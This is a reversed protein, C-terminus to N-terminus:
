ISRDVNSDTWSHIFKTFFTSFGMITNHPFLVSRSLYNLNFIYVLQNHLPLSILRCLPDGKRRLKQSFHHYYWSFPTSQLKQIVMKQYNSHSFHRYLFILWRILYEYKKGFNIKSSSFQLSEFTSGIIWGVGLIKSFDWNFFLVLLSHM